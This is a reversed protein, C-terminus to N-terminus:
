VCATTFLEHKCIKGGGKHYLAHGGGAQLWM